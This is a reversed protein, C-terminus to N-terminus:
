LGVTNLHSQLNAALVEIPIVYLLPSLVVRDSERPPGSLTLPIGM